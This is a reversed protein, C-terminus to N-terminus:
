DLQFASLLSDFYRERANPDPAPLPDRGKWNKLSGPPFGYDRELAEYTHIGLPCSRQHELWFELEETTADPKETIEEFRVCQQFVSTPETM